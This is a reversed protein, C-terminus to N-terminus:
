TTNPMHHKERPNFSCIRELHTCQHKIAQCFSAGAYYFCHSPMLKHFMDLGFILQMSTFILPLFCELFNWCKFYNSIQLNESFINMFLNSVLSSFACNDHGLSPMEISLHHLVVLNEIPIHIQSTFYFCVAFFRSDAISLPISGM